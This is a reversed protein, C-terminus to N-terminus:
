FLALLYVLCYFDSLIWGVSCSLGLISHSFGVVFVVMRLRPILCIVVPEFM